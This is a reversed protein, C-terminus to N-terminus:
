VEKAGAGIEQGGLDAQTVERTEQQTAQQVQPVAVDTREEMVAEGDEM